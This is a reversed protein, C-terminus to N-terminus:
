AAMHSVRKRAPVIAGGDLHAGKSGARFRGRVRFGFGALVPGGCLVGGPVALRAHSGSLDGNPANVKRKGLM